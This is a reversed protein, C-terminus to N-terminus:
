TTNKLLNNVDEFHLGTTPEDLIYVTRGTFRKSLKKSLKIRQAEGGSLTTSSQGLTIYGLGMEGGQIAFCCETNHTGCCDFQHFPSAQPCQTHQNVTFNRCWQGLNKENWNTPKPRNLKSEDNVLDPWIVMASTLTLISLSLIMTRLM